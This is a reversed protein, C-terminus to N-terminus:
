VAAVLGHPGDPAIQVDRRETTLFSPFVRWLTVRLCRRVLPPVPVVVVVCLGRRMRLPDIYDGVRLSGSQSPALFLLFCAVSSSQTHPRYAPEEVTGLRQVGRKKHSKTTGPAFFGCLILSEQQKEVPTPILILGCSRM